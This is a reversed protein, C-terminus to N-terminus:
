LEELDYDNPIVKMRLLEPDHAPIVIDAMADLKALNRMIEGPNLISPGFYGGYRANFVRSVVEQVEPDSLDMEQGSVSGKSVLEYFQKPFRKAMGAYLYLTDGTIIAQGRATNVAVAQSGATHGPTLILDIGEQLPLDGNILRFKPMLDIWDETCCGVAQYGMPFYSDLVEAEQVYLEANEFLHLYGTHELHLHTVLVKEISLPDVGNSELVTPVEEEPARHPGFLFKPVHDHQYSADVVIQEGGESEILFMFVPLDAIYGSALPSIISGWNMNFWGTLLPKIVYKKM